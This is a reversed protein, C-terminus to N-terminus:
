VDDDDDDDNDDGGRHIPVVVFDVRVFSCARYIGGGGGGGGGGGTLPPPPTNSKSLKTNSNCRDKDLESGWSTGEATILLSNNASQSRAQSSVTCVTCLNTEVNSSAAM